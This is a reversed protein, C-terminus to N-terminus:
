RAAELWNRRKAHLKRPQAAGTIRKIHRRITLPHAGDPPPPLNPWAPPILSQPVDGWGADILAQLDLLDPDVIEHSLIPGIM